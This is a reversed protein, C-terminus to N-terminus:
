EHQLGLNADLLEHLAYVTEVIPLLGSAVYSDYIDANEHFMYLFRTNRRMADVDCFVAIDLDNNQDAGKVFPRVTFLEPFEPGLPTGGYELFRLMNVRQQSFRVLMARLAEDQIIDLRGTALLTSFSPLEAINATKIHSNYIARCEIDTVSDRDDYGFLVELGSRLGERNEIRRERIFARVSIADVLEEHLRALFKQEDIRDQRARNWDDVQLGIFIGVVVILVELLVTSWNQERIAEALRRLIM